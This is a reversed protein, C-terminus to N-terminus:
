SGTLLAEVRGRFTQVFAQLQDREAVTMLGLNVLENHTARHEGIRNGDQDAVMAYASMTEEVNLSEPMIQSLINMSIIPISTPVKSENINDFSM